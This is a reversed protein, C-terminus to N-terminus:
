STPEDPPAAPITVTALIRNMIPGVDPVSGKPATSTLNLVLRKGTACMVLRQDVVGTSGRWFFRLEIAPHGGVTREVRQVLSFGELRQVLEVLQRDTYGALNEGPELRDRTLVVNPATTAGPPTPASFAIVSRDEWGRPIDFSIDPHEYRAM